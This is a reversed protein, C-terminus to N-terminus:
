AAYPRSGMAPAAESYPADFTVRSLKQIELTVNIGLSAAREQIESLKANQIEILSLAGEVRRQSEEQVGITKHWTADTLRVASHCITALMNLEAARAEYKFAAEIGALSAIVIGIMMFVVGILNDNGAFFKTFAGQAASVAGLVILATKLSRSTLIYKQASKALLGAVRQLEEQRESIAEQLMEFKTQNPTAAM